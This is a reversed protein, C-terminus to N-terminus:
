KMLRIKLKDILKFPILIVMILVLSVENSYALIVRRVMLALFVCKAKFDYKIVQFSNLM